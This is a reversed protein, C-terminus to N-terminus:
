GTVELRLIHTFVENGEVPEFGLAKYFASADNGIAWLRLFHFHNRADQIVRFVLQRGIGMRRFHPHIYLRRLRGIAPDETYPDRNLGCVGVLRDDCRAVYFAEGPASFRNSGSQWDDRLWQLAQFGERNAEALLEKDFDLPLAQARIIQISAKM